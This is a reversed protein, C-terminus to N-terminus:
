YQEILFVNANFHEGLEQRNRHRFFLLQDLVGDIQCCHTFLDKTLVLLCQFTFNTDVDKEMPFDELNAFKGHHHDILFPHIKKSHCNSSIRSRDSFCAM